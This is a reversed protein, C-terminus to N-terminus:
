HHGDLRFSIILGYALFNRAKLFAPPKNDDEYFFNISDQRSIPLHMGINVDQKGLDMKM